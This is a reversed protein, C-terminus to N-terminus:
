EYYHCFDDDDYDDDKDKLSLDDHDDHHNDSLKCLLAAFFSERRTKDDPHRAISELRCCEPLCYGSSAICESLSLDHDADADIQDGARHPCVKAKGNEKTVKAKDDAQRTLWSIHNEEDATKRKHENYVGVAQQEQYEAQTEPEVLALNDRHFSKQLLKGHVSVEVCWRGNSVHQLVTGVRGNYSTTRLGCLRIKCGPELAARSDDHVRPSEDAFDSPVVAEGTDAVVEDGESENVCTPPKQEGIEHPDIVALEANEAHPQFESAQLNWVSNWVCGSVDDTSSSGAEVNQGFSLYCSGVMAYHIDVIMMEMRAMRDLLQDRNHPSSHEHEPTGTQLPSQLATDSLQAVARHAAHVQLRRRRKQPKSLKAPSWPRKLENENRRILCEIPQPM